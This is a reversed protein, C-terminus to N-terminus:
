PLFNLCPGKGLLDQLKIPFELTCIFIWNLCNYYTNYFLSKWM